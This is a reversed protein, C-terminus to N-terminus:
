RLGAWNVSAMPRMASQNFLYRDYEAGMQPKQSIVTKTGLRVGPPCAMLVNVPNVSPCHETQWFRYHELDSAHNKEVM